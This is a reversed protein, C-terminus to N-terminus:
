PNLISDTLQTSVLVLKLIYVKLVKEFLCVSSM